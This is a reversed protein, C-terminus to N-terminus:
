SQPGSFIRAVLESSLFIRELDDFDVLSDALKGATAASLRRHREAREPFVDMATSHVRWAALPLDFGEM